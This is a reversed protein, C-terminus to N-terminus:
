ESVPEQTFLPSDEQHAREYKLMEMWTQVDERSEPMRAQQIQKEQEAITEDWWEQSLSGTRALRSIGGSRLRVLAAQATDAEQRLWEWEAAWKAGENDDAPSEGRQKMAARLRAAFEGPNTLGEEYVCMLLLLDSDPLEIESMTRETTTAPSLAVIGPAL